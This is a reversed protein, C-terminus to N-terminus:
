HASAFYQTEVYHEVDRGLNAALRGFRALKMAQGERLGRTKNPM